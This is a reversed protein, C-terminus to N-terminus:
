GLSPSETTAHVQAARRHDASAQTVAEKPEDIKGNPVKPSGKSNPSLISVCGFVTAVMAVHGAVIGWYGWSM